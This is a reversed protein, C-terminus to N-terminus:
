AGNRLRRLLRGLLVRALHLRMAPPVEDSEPPALDGELAAQAAVIREADLTSGILAAEAGRVRTPTNGVSFFSIRIDDIQDGTCTALM